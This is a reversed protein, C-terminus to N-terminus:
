KDLEKLREEAETKQKLLNARERQEKLFKNLAWKVNKEGYQEYAKKLNLTKLVENYSERSGREKEEKTSM